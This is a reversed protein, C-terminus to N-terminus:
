TLEGLPQKPAADAVPVHGLWRRRDQASCFRRPRHLLPAAPRTRACMRSCPRSLTHTSTHGRRVKALMVPPDPVVTPILISRPPTHACPPSACAHTRVCVRMLAHARVCTSHDRPQVRLPPSISNTRWREGLVETLERPHGAVIWHYHTCRRMCQNPASRVISRECLSPRTSVWALPLVAAANFRHVRVYARARVMSSLMYLFLMSCARM